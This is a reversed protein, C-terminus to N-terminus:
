GASQELTEMKKGNIPNLREVEIIKWEGNERQFTVILRAPQYGVDGISAVNLTANARFHVKCRSNENSMTTQFDSLRMDSQVTVLQMAAQFMAKLGPASDSVYDSVDKKDRFDECLQVVRAQVKEGDTVIAKELLYIGGCSLLFLLALVLHVGRRNANWMVLYVLAILGAILMPPWPNETLWM